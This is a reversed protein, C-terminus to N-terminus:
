LSNKLRLYKAKYKIYKLKYDTNKQYNGGSQRFQGVIGQATRPGEYEYTQGNKSIMITPYGQLNVAAIKDPNEQEEYENHTIGLEKLAPKVENDWVPKFRQCHGCWNAHYLTVSNMISYIIGIYYFTKTLLLKSLM